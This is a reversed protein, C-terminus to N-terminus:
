GLALQQTHERQVEQLKNPNLGLLELITPAIQTNEVNTNTAHNIGPGTVLIPVDRGQPNAGGYEAIKGQGGTYVTGVQAIGVLDPVRQHGVTDNAPIHFYNAAAAGAYVTALGSATFPKPAGTIDDGTGNYNLLFNKAFDAAPQGRDNLWMYMGDDDRRV